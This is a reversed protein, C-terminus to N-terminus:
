ESLRYRRQNARQVFSKARDALKKNTQGYLTIKISFGWPTNDRVLQIGAVTECGPWQRIEELCLKRLDSYGIKTRALNVM